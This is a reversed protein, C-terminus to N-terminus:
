EGSAAQFRRHLQAFRGGQQVLEDYRGREIIKGHDMVLVQDADRVTSLRHAIVFSTRGQLLRKLAIQLRSETLTDISATAEDLILIRPDAILARCFCIVQRQGLSIGTGKEGVVTDLGDPLSELIDRVGLKEAAALIEARDAEPKAFRINDYISGTFLFNVQQVVGMRRRLAAGSIASLNQGDLLIVGADPQWLKSILSVITSKGCGTHGVLAITQGPEAVFCIDELVRHEGDYSFAVDVFEIRGAIPEAPPRVDTPEHWDPETDLLRFVRECGAMAALAQNYQNGIVGIPGFFFNALFFFQILDGLEGHGGLVRWGGIALLSAIFAQSNFDLLPLFTASTRAMSMNYRAHDEVLSRFLGANVDQRAFGQTVRIGNVSEALTATVRSFSEQAQRTALSMQRRFHRNIIALIPALCLVVAFLLPELFAMIGAAVLAQGAQVTSVFFVDQVGVRVSEIDSTVRSLIRGLRMKSFFGMPMTMLKDFVAIRLDHVVGEGLELANRHRFHFCFDTFLCMAFYGVAGWLVGHLDGGAIPGAIIAGLLWAIIPLQVGRLLVLGILLRLRWRYPRAYSFLRRLLAFELPRQEQEEDRKAVVVLRKSPTQASVPGDPLTSSM